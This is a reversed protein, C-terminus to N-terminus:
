TAVVNSPRGGVTSSTRSVAGTAPSSRTASMVVPTSTANLSGTAGSDASSANRISGATAPATLQLPLVIRKVGASGSSSSVSYATVSASPIRSTAPLRIVSTGCGNSNMVAPRGCSTSDTGSSPASATGSSAGIASVNEVSM